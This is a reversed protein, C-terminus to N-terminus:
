NLIVVQPFGYQYGKGLIVEWFCCVVLGVPVVDNRKSFSAVFQMKLFDLKRISNKNPFHKTKSDLSAEAKAECESAHGKTGPPLARKEGWRRKDGLVM